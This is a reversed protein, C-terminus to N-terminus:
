DSTQERGLPDRADQGLIVTVDIGEDAAIEGDQGGGVREARGFGLLASLWTVRDDFAPDAYVLRTEPEDFTAANGVIAVEAGDAVLARAARETLQPDDTGNLLRVRVRQGPAPSVPYPIAGSVFAGVRLGDTRYQAGNPGDERGVPLAAAEGGGSAVARVFRGIGTDIEGPLAGEGADRVLPLWADWFAEQRDVRALDEEGDGRASLFPGVDAAALEVEGAPWDGVADENQVTVPGVPEVLRAWDADDLVVTDTVAATVVRGLAQSAEAAGGNVYVEDLTRETGTEDGVVTAAPVLVVSGGADGPELALVAAGALHGDSTRVLVGMTPTPVVSAQYGPETPGLAQQYRGATSNRVASLGGVALAVGALTLAGMGALVVQRRRRLQAVSRHRAPGSRRPAAGADLRPDAPAVPDRDVPPPYAALGAARRRAV